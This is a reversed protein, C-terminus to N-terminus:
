TQLVFGINQHHGSVASLARYGPMKTEIGAVIAPRGM